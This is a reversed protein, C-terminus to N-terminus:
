SRPVFINHLGMPTLGPAVVSALTELTQADLVVVFGMPPSRSADLGGVLLVGGDEEFSSPDQVFIPEAPFLGEYPGWSAVISRKSVDYKIISSKDAFPNAVFYVFRYPKYRYLHNIQCFEKSNVPMEFEKKHYSWRQTNIMVRVFKTDIRSNQFGNLIEDVSLSAYINYDAMLMDAVINGEEDEFWNAQHTSFFDENAPVNAVFTKSPIHFVLFRATKAKQYSLSTSFGPASVNTPRLLIGCYNWGMSSLPLVIYNPTAIFSHMYGLMDDLNPYVTSFGDTCLSLDFNALKYTGQVERSKGVIKYIIVHLEGQTPGTFIVKATTSWRSGELDVVGHAPTGLLVSGDDELQDEFEVPGHSSLDSLDLALGHPGEDVADVFNKGFQPLPWFTVSATDGYFGDKETWNNAWLNAREADYPGFATPWAIHSETFNYGYHSFVKYVHNIYFENSYSVLGENFNYSVAMGLCDFLHEVKTPPTTQPSSVDGFAGCSQRLFNGGLWNPIYGTVKTEANMFSPRVFYPFADVTPKGALSLCSISLLLFLYLSRM